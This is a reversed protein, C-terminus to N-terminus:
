ARAGTCGRCAQPTPLGTDTCAWAPHPLTHLGRALDPPIPPPALLSSRLDTREPVRRAPLRCATSRVLLGDM